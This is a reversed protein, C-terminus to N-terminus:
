QEPRNRNDFPGLRQSILNRMELFFADIKNELRTILEEFKTDIKTNLEEVKGEIRQIRKFAEKLGMKLSLRETYEELTEERERRQQRKRKLEAMLDGCVNQVMERYTKERAFEIKGANVFQVVGNYKLPLMPLQDFPGDLAVCTFTKRLMDRLISNDFMKSIYSSSCINHCDIIQSQQPEVVSMCYINLTKKELAALLSRYHVGNGKAKVSFGLYTMKLMYRALEKGISSEDDNCSGPLIVFPFCINYTVGGIRLKAPMLGFTTSNGTGVIVNKYCINDSSFIYTLLTEACNDFMGAETMDRVASMVLRQQERVTDIEKNKLTAWIVEPQIRNDLYFTNANPCKNKLQKYVLDSFLGEREEQQNIAMLALSPDTPRREM